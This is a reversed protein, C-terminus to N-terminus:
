CDCKEGLIQMFRGAREREYVSLVSDARFTGNVYGYIDKLSKLPIAIMEIPFLSKTYHVETPREHYALIQGLAVMVCGAVKKKSNEAYMNFPERQYWKTTLLPALKIITTDVRIVESPGTSTIVEGTIPDLFGNLTEQLADNLMSGILLGSGSPDSMLSPNAVMYDDNVPDYLDEETLGEEDFDDAYYFIDSSISGQEAIIYVDELRKDAGLVAFGGNEFNVFYYATESVLSDAVGGESRTAKLIERGGVSEISGIVKRESSRTPPYLEDLMSNM